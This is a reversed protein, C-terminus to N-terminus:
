KFSILLDMLLERTEFTLLTGLLVSSLTAFSDVGFGAIVKYSLKFNEAM